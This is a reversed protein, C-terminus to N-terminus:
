NSEKKKCARGSSVQLTYFYKRIRENADGINLKIKECPQLNM